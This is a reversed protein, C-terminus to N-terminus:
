PSVSVLLTFPGEYDDELTAVELFVTLDQDTGIGLLSSNGGAQSQTDENSLLLNDDEDYFRIVTITNGFPTRLSVDVPTNAKLELRYRIREGASLQVEIAEGLDIIGGDIVPITTASNLADIAYQLVVDDDSFLTEENVPVQITPEVGKGEIHINGDADVSRGITFRVTMGRPMRFDNVSGGLGATPYQGVVEARDLLTMDYALRECASACQPGVLTMIKGGYHLEEDEPLYVRQEAREEFFFDGLEENYFGRSGVVTEEDFFYGSMQDALFGNGGGNFRLDIILGPIEQENLQRIMREWLQITLLSNDQFSYISVYGYGDDLLEYEVPLEFGDFEVARTPDTENFSAGESSTSLTVDTPINDDPNQYEIDVSQINANFRTAYRMQELRLNHPSSFPQTWPQQESIVDSIPKGDIEILEAGLQVGAVDAPGDELLFTVLSRGDDTETIGIGIGRAIAFQFQEIFPTFPSLAVHGDPIRWIFERLANLYATQNNNKAAEVFRPRFEDELADWDLHKYDTFAYETRFMDLMEDFADVFNLDSLDVLASGEPEILDIQQHRSRDFTFPHTDMNVITYGQPAQVIPDDDTFLLNDDGFDSPFGQTDDPAYILYKGGIVERITDANESLRTSVYATSWGGGYQDRVDLFPDGWTNAWYAIAYVMVGADTEDDHDVDRLTGQPEIPLAISYTFPSEYFDSTIQGITQSEKPFVYYENRDVFGAQDELIIIPAAVGDTFFPNTYIVEGTIAVVGGEDNIIQANPYDAQGRVIM